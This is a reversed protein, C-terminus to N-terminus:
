KTQCPYPLPNKKLLLSLSASGYVTLPSFRIKQFLLITSPSRPALSSNYILFSKLVYIIYPIYQLTFLFPIQLSVSLKKPRRSRVFGGSGSYLLPLLAGLTHPQHPRIFALPGTHLHYFQPLFVLIILSIFM